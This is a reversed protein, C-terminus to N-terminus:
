ERFIEQNDATADDKLANLLVSLGAAAIALFVASFTKEKVSSVMSGFYAQRVEKTKFKKAM